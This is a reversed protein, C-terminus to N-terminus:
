SNKEAFNEETLKNLYFLRKTDFCVNFKLEKKSDFDQNPIFDLLFDSFIHLGAAYKQINSM